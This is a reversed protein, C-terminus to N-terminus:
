KEIYIIGIANPGCHSTITAGAQTTIIEEFGANTLANQCINIANQSATTYAVFGLTKDPNPYQELTDKCYTGVCVDFAGRYKKGHGVKGGSMVIQPHIKLLNAGFYLISSCRGSKKLFDLKDLVFTVRVKPIDSKIQSIIDEVSFGEQAMNSAKISLLAIGSCLSSTDVVYVNSLQKAASFANQCACSVDSSSSLHIVADHNKLLNSFHETFQHQNVASTKPLIKTSSVFDIIQNANVEGDMELKDGLLVGFPVSHIQYKNLMQKSLDITSEASIAIKM